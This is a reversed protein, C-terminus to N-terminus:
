VLLMDIGLEIKKLFQNFFESSWSSYVLNKPGIEIRPEIRALPWNSTAIRFVKLIKFQQDL